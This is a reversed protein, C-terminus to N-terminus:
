LLRNLTDSTRTDSGEAQEWCHSQGPHSATFTVSVEEVSMLKMWGDLKKACANERQYLLISM